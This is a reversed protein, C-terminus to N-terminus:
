SLFRSIHFPNSLNQQSNPFREFLILSHSALSSHNNFDVAEPPSTKWMFDAIFELSLYLAKGKVFKDSIWRHKDSSDDIIESELFRKEKPSAAMFVNKFYWACQWNLQPRILREMAVFGFDVSIECQENFISSLYNLIKSNM